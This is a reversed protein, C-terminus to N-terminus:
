NKEASALEATPEGITSTVVLFALEDISKNTHTFSETDIPDIISMFYDCTIYGLPRDGATVVLETCGRSTFAEYIEPFSADNAIAEPMSSKAPESSGQKGDAALASGAFCGNGELYARLAAGAHLSDFFDANVSNRNPIAPFPEMIDQAVVNAFPNGQSMEQQWADLEKSFEGAVIIRDGGSQGGLKLTELADNLLRDAANECTWSTVACTLTPSPVSEPLSERSGFEKTLSEAISKASHVSHNLLLTVFVGNRLYACIANDGATRRIGRAAKNVLKQAVVEGSKRRIGAYWDISIALVAHQAQALEENAKIRNLKRAFGRRSYMGSLPTFPSREQLRREFEVYRAGTGHGEPEALEDGLM